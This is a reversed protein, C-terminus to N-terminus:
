TKDYKLLYHSHHLLTQSIKIIIIIFLLPNKLVSLILWFNFKITFWFVLLHHLVNLEFKATNGLWKFCKYNRSSKEEEAKVLRILTKARRFETLEATKCHIQVSGKIRYSVNNQIEPLFHLIHAVLLQIFNVLCTLFVLVCICVSYQTNQMRELEFGAHLLKHFMLYHRLSSLSM